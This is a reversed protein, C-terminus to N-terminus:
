KSRFTDLKFVTDNIWTDFAQSNKMLMAANDASYPIETEPASNTDILMLQEVDAVTLGSWGAFVTSVFSELFKDEDQRKILMGNEWKDVMSDEVLKRSTKRSVYNVRVKFHPMGPYAVEVTKTDLAIDKLSIM